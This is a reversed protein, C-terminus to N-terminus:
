ANEDTADTAFSCSLEASAVIGRDEASTRSDTGKWAEPHMVADGIANFSHKAKRNNAFTM